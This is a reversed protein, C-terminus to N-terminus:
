MNSDHGIYSNAISQEVVILCLLMRVKELRTQLKEGFRQMKSYGESEKMIHCLHLLDEPLAQNRLHVLLTNNADGLSKSDKIETEVKEPIIGKGRVESAIAKADVHRLFEDGVETLVDEVACFFLLLTSDLM